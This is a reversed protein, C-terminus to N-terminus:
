INRADKNEPKKMLLNHWFLVDERSMLLDPDVYVGREIGLNIVSEVTIKEEM